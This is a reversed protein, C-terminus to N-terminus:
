RPTPSVPRAARMKQRVESLYRDADARTRIASFRAIISNRQEPPSLALDARLASHMIGPVNGTDVSAVPRAVPLPTILEEPMAGASYVIPSCGGVGSQAPAPLVAPADGRPSSLSLLPMLNSANADRQTMPRLGFCAELTAPISAHDYVRHDILNRPILPSIVVAPVRVGYQEFTFGYRNSSSRMATDSPAVAKPPAVHDYFGGHEDWTIILLSSNWVASNRIAEYTSKILGEGRTVDDLPHQSTSCRYDSLVNYSPEIFTYSIPYDSQAVDHLFRSYPHVDTPYIGKLGAVVPFLDGAYIRWKIGHGHLRDFITGNAFAFGHVSEWEVIEQTSPSHDLGGSSAAHVFFRNPWTPGPISAYWNDCVVFERALANLVPLQGPSYCKMIEGPNSQGGSAAYSAVFGRNVITPYSAGPPYVAGQGCLQVLVDLFEHGPDVSM